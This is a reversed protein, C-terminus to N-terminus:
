NLTRSLQINIALRSAPAEQKIVTPVTSLFMVQIQKFNDRFEGCHVVSVPTNLFEMHLSSNLLMM